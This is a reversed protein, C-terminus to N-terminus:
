PAVPVQVEIIRHDPDNGCGLYAQGWQQGGSVAAATCQAGDEVFTYLQWGDRELVRLQLTATGLQPRCAAHLHLHKM